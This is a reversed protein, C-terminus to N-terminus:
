DARPGLPDNDALAGRLFDFYQDGDPPNAGNGNAHAFAADAYNSSRESGNLSMDWRPVGEANEAEGSAALDIVVDDDKAEDGDLPSGQARALLSQAERDATALIETAERQARQERELMEAQGDVLMTLMVEHNSVALRASAGRQEADQILNTLRTREAELAAVFDDVVARPYGLSDRGPLMADHDM